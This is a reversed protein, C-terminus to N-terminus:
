KVNKGQAKTKKYLIARKRHTREMIFEGNIETHLVLWGLREELTNNKIGKKAESSVGQSIKDMDESNRDTIENCALPTV